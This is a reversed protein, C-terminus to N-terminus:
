RLPKPVGFLRGQGYSVGLAAAAELAAEDEIMEGIVGIELERCLTCISCVLARDRRNSSAAKLFPGDIKIFDFDFHRLYHYTAAGAGFDDLCVSCGTSKLWGLFTAAGEFREIAHSETLEFMLRGGRSRHPRLLARMADCFGANQVSRGSLNVALALNPTADLAALAKTCVALDFEEILGIEEAFRVTEFPQRGGPFRALVEHHHVARDALSVIPQAALSFSGEAIVRRWDDSRAIVAEVAPGLGQRLTPAAPDGVTGSFDRVAYALARAAQLDDAGGVAVRIDDIGLDTKRRRGRRQEGSPSARPTSTSKRNAM